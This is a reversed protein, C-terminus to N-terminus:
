THTQWGLEFLISGIFWLIGHLWGVLADALELDIVIHIGYAINSRAAYHETVAGQRELRVLLLQLRTDWDEDGEGLGENVQGTAFHKAVLFVM